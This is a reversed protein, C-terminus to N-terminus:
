SPLFLPLIDPGVMWTVTSFTVTLSVMTTIDIVIITLKPRLICLPIIFKFDLTMTAPKLERRDQRAIGTMVPLSKSRRNPASLFIPRM